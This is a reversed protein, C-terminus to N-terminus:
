GQPAGIAPAIYAWVIFGVIIGAAMEVLLIAVHSASMKSGEAM